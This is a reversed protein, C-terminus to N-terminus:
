NNKYFRSWEFYNGPFDNMIEGSFDVLPPPINKVLEYTELFKREKMPSGYTSMSNYYLLIQEYSSTQSRLAKILEKKSDLDFYDSPLKTTLYNLIHFWNRFYQGLINDDLPEYGLEDFFYAGTFRSGPVVISKKYLIIQFYKIIEDFEIGNKNGVIINYLHTNLGIVHKNLGNYFFIYSINILKEREINIKKSKYFDNMILFISKFELFLKQFVIDGNIKDNIYIKEAIFRNQQILYLLKTEYKNIESEKHQNDFQENHKRNAHYQVLFALYTLIGVAAGIFPSTIGGITDGINGTTTLKLDPFIAERTFFIVIITLLLVTSAVSYVVIKEYNESIIANKFDSM